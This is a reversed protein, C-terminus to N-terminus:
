SYEKLTKVVTDWGHISYLGSSLRQELSLGEILNVCFKLAQVLENQCGVNNTFTLLVKDFQKLKRRLEEIEQLLCKEIKPTVDVDMKLSAM